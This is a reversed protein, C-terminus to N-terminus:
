WRYGLAVSGTVGPGASTYPLEIMPRIRVHDEGIDLGVRPVVVAETRTVVQDNSVDSTREVGGDVGAVVCTTSEARCGVVEAGARLQEFPGHIWVAHGEAATAHLWIPGVRYSGDITAAEVFHRSAGSMVGVAVYGDASTLPTNAPTPESAPQAHAAGAVVLPVLGLLKILKNM